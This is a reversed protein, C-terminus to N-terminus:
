SPRSPSRTRLTSCRLVPVEQGVPTTFLHYGECGPVADGCTWGFLGDYFDRYYHDLGALSLRPNLEIAKDEVQTGTTRRDSFMM